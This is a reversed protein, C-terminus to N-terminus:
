NEEENEIIIDTLVYDWSTGYHTIGWVFVGLRSDYWVLEDTLNELIHYGKDSIIYNVLEM